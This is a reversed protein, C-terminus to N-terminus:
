SELTHLKSSKHLIGAFIVFLLEIHITVFCLVFNGALHLKRRNSDVGTLLQSQGVRCVREFVREVGPSCSLVNLNIIPTHIIKM